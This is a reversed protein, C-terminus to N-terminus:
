TDLLADIHPRIKDPKTNPAFRKVVNGEQDILFKTFNWKIKRSLVGSKQKVLWKYLPHASNGNVDIKDFLPFTVGFNITCTQVIEDADGPEQHNFQNCPFGLVEVGQKKYDQHIAELAKFQGAFGCKTATNVILVVNGKYKEMSLSNGQIDNAEYTYFAM